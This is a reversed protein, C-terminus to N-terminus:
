QISISLLRSSSISERRTVYRKRRCALINTRGAVTEESLQPMDWVGPAHASSGERRRAPFPCSEDVRWAPSPADETKVADAMRTVIGMSFKM